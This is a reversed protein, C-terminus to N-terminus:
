ITREKRLMWRCKSRRKKREMVSLVINIDRLIVMVPVATPM